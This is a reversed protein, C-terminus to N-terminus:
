KREMMMDFHQGQQMERFIMEFVARCQVTDMYDDVYNLGDNIGSSSVAIYSLMASAMGFKTYDENGLDDHTLENKHKVLIRERLDEGEYGCLQLFYYELIRRIINMLPVCSVVEKYEEWLAAYSNKVPNVNIRETPCDPNVKDCLRISSRNDIKQILYFSVFEYHSPYSYTVERHFYANHTLIFIQKIFNGPVIPNRNDANNRCIEIMKRVQASVIFLTNSDMSSVPDDIVVIKDRIEGDASDSGFVLQQFYMFAIFNKEGESLNDAIAGTETRVIDYNRAPSPTIRKKTGDALVIEESHPRLEFGQFGSDHLITNIQKMATETEVTRTNLDRLEDNIKNIINKQDDIVKQQTKMEDKLVDDSRKYADVIDKTIFAMYEFVTDKCETKKKPGAAVIANNKDILENFGNIIDSLEQLLASTDELAVIKSPESIKEKIKDINAAITAKITALKDNYPKVNIPPYIEEPLNSLPIFLSNATQKYTELFTNLKERNKQYQDDFSDSLMKEFGDDLTRSCYPCRDGAKEHYDEHGKHVWESAGIERLFNAFPTNSTNVIALSLLNKDPVSELICSDPVTHFRSYQKATDSYVSDYTRSLETLDHEIPDHRLLEETFNQKSRRYKDQTKDYNSRIANTKEWCDKYFQNKLVTQTKKKNEMETAAASSTKKAESQKETKEDIQSQVEANAKTMTYVGPIGHYSPMNTNIFDQDYVLPLYDAASKGPAYSVGIGTKIAKALTSKGTGNNGFFYNIYTPTISVGTGKYTAEDLVIKRIECPLKESM